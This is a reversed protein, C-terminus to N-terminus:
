TRKARPHHSRFVAQLREADMHTYIQTTGIDAHGLITQVTRLDAGNRVMHTAASHRLMHPSAHRGRASHEKLLQWVRQRTLARGGSALFLVGSQRKKVFHPRADALYERLAAQAAEGLPVFREKDGKGRVIVVGEDLNLDLLRLSVLESVRLGGAYLTEVMARDRIAIARDLARDRRPMRSAVIADIEDTRLSKPLVKWRAPAEINLTPDMKIIKDTLLHRYFSRLASLKRAVSRPQVADAHLRQLFNRVDGRDGNVLTKTMSAFQRLDSLYAEISRQSLGKEVRLYAAYSALAREDASKM